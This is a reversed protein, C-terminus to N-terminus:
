KNQFLRVLLDLSARLESHLGPLGKSQKGGAEAEWIAPIPPGM